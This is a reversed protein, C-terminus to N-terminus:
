GPSLARLLYEFVKYAERFLDAYQERLLPLALAVVLIGVAMKVPLSLFFVNIQPAIRNVMGFFLDTLLLAIMPPAALQVSISIMQGTLTVVSSLLPSFGGSLHPFGTAPVMQFSELLAGIFVRHAGIMLFLVIALQLQFQGMESVSVELQPAFLEAMASGRQIDIIRGAMSIAEFVLSALFGLSFGVLAEKILLAIFGLPGLRVGQDINPEIIPYVIIVLAAATAAKVRGPVAAGGFFPAVALFSILRTFALGILVLFSQPSQGIEFTRLITDFLSFFDEM